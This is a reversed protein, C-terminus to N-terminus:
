SSLARTGALLLQPHILTNTKREKENVIVPIRAYLM